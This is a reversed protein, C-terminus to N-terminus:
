KKNKRARMAKVAAAAATLGAVGGIVGGVVKGKFKQKAAYESAEGMAKRITKNKSFGQQGARRQVDSFSVDIGLKELEDNFAANYTEQSM